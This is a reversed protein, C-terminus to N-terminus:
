RQEQVGLCLSCVSTLVWVDNCRVLDFEIYFGYDM